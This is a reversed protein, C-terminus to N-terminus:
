LNMEDPSKEKGNNPPFNGKNQTTTDHGIRLPRPISRRFLQRVKHLVAYIAIVIGVILCAMVALVLGEIVTTIINIM